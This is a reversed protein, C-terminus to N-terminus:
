SSGWLCSWFGWSSFPSSRSTQNTRREPIARASVAADRAGTDRTETNKVDTGKWPVTGTLNTMATVAAAPKGAPMKTKTINTIDTHRIDINTINAAAKRM